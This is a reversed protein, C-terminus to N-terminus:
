ICNIDICNPVLLLIGLNGFGQEIPILNFTPNQIKNRRGLESEVGPKLGGTSAVSRAPQTLRREVRVLFFSSTLLPLFHAMWSGAAM